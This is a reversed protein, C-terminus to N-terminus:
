NLYLTEYLGVESFYNFFGFWIFWIFFLVVVLKKNKKSIPKMGYYTLLIIWLSIVPFLYRGQIGAFEDRPLWKMQLYSPYNVYLILFIPYFISIITAYVLKKNKPEFFKIAFVIGLFVLIESIVLFGSGQYYKTHGFIGFTHRMMYESWVFTYNFLPLPDINKTKAEKNIKYYKRYVPNEDFCEEHSFLATCGPTISGYKLFVKGHVVLNLSLLFFVGFKLSLQKLNNKRFCFNKLKSWFIKKEKYFVSGWLILLIVAVPGFAMKTLSGLLISILSYFFYEIKPKEQYKFFLYISIISLLNVLNDYSVGSALFTFMLINTQFMFALLVLLKNKLISQALRYFVFLYGGVLFMNIFKLYYFHTLDIFNLYLLKGLLFHYFSFDSPIEHASIVTPELFFGSNGYYREILHLHFWADPTAGVSMTFIFYIVKAFFYYILCRTLVSHWDIKKLPEKLIM